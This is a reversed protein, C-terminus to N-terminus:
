FVADLAVAFVTVPREVGGPPGFILLGSKATPQVRDVQIKLARARAFNWRVGVLDSRQQSSTLFGHRVTDSLAGSAPFAAPLTVATGTQRVVGHSYYPLWAGIRYGAMLYWSLNDPIYVPEGSRRLGYESQLVLNRWDWGLGLSTFHIKKGGVLTMDRALQPFGAVALQATLTNLLTFDDSDLKSHLHGFRLTLPGRDLMLNVALLPARYNAISGGGGGVFLKGRSVGAAVQATVTSAGFSRQYTLDLGDLNELAAQSYMEIPPRMMTSAYGVNQYESMMFVPLAVRGLRVGLDDNAKYKIFAWALDTGYRESAFKRTLVQATASVDDNVRYSAQLGLNTDLGTNVHDTVGSSQNYRVFQAVDSNSRAVGITGYGSLSLRDVAPQEARAALPSFFLLSFALHSALSPLHM